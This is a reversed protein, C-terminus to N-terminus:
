PRGTLICVIHGLEIARKIETETDPHIESNASDSLVTGDLDLVFLFRAKLTKM